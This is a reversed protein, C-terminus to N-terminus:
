DSRAPAQRMRALGFPDSLYITVPGIDYQGRQKCVLGYHLTQHNRPSAPPWWGCPRGLGGVADELLLFSTSGARTRSRSISMSGCWAVRDVPSASELRTPTAPAALGNGRLLVVLAAALMHLDRSAVLRAVVWTLLGAAFVTWGRRTPMLGERPGTGSGREAARGPDVRQHSREHRRGRVRDPPPHPGSRRPGQRRRPHRLRPERLRWRAVAFPSPPGRSVFTCSPHEPEGRRDGVHRTPWTCGRAQAILEAIGARGDGASTTSCRPSAACSQPEVVNDMELAADRHDLQPRPCRIRARTSSRTQTAIVMFPSGLQYTVTDVTVQREEMSELLASQTKPSARNIEDALVVNAFVAGPKFEFDGREQNYVNVGTVDTPLLDPTFQIRRFSCDISRAVSKALM